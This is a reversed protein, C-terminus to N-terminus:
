PPLNISGMVLLISPPALAKRTSSGTPFSMFFNEMGHIIERRTPANYLM